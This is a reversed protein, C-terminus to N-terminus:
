ESTKSGAFSTKGAERKGHTGWFNYGRRAVGRGDLWKGTTSKKM